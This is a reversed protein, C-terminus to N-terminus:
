GLKLNTWSQCFHWNKYVSTLGVRHNPSRKDSGAVSKEWLTEHAERMGPLTTAKGLLFGELVIMCNKPTM